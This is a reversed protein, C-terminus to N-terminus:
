GKVAARHIIRTLSMSRGLSGEAQVPRRSPCRNVIRLDIARRWHPRGNHGVGKVRQQLSLGAHDKRCDSSHKKAYIWSAERVQCPQGPRKM